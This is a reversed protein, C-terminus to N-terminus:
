VGVGDSSGMSKMADLVVIVEMRKIESISHQYENSGFEDGSESNRSWKVGNQTRNEFIWYM